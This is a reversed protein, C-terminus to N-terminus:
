KKQQQFLWLRCSFQLALSSLSLLRNSEFLALGELLSQKLNDPTTAFMGGKWSHEILMYWTCVTGRKCFMWFRFTWIFQLCKWPLLLWEGIQIKTKGSELEVTVAILCPVLWLAHRCVFRSQWRLQHWQGCKVPLSCVGSVYIWFLKPKFNHCKRSERRGCDGSLVNLCFHILPIHATRLRRQSNIM